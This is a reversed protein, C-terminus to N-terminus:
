IINITTTTGPNFNYFKINESINVTISNPTIVTVQHKKLKLYHYLGLSSGMADGDPNYHTTIIIKKKESLLIKIKEIENSQMM